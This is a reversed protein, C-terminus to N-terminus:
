QGATRAAAELATERRPSGHTSPGATTLAVALGLVLAVHSKGTGSNGLTIVNERSLIFECRALELVLM